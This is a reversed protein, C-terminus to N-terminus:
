RDPGNADVSHWGRGHSRTELWLKVQEPVNISFRWEMATKGNYPDTHQGVPVVTQKSLLDFAYKRGNRADEETMRTFLHISFGMRPAENIQAAAAIVRRWARIYVEPEIRRRGYLVLSGGCCASARETVAGMCEYEAGTTVCEWSRARRRNGIEWCNNSGMEEVLFVVDDYHGAQAATMKFAQRRYSIEYSM